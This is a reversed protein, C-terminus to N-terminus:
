ILKLHKVSQLTSDRIASLVRQGARTSCGVLCTLGVMVPLDMGSLVGGELLPRLVSWVTRAPCFTGGGPDPLQRSILSQCMPCSEPCLCMPSSVPCLCMPSSEPCLCMPRIVLRFLLCRIVLRLLLCRAVLRLLLCWAGLRLLLCRPGWASCCASPGWASCCAGPG